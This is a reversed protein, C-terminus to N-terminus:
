EFNYYRTDVLVKRFGIRGDRKAHWGGKCLSPKFAEKDGAGKDPERTRSGQTFPATVFHSLSQKKGSFYDGGDRWWTECPGGGKISRM